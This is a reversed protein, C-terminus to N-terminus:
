MVEACGSALARYTMSKVRFGSFLSLCQCTPIYQICACFPVQSARLVCKLAHLIEFNEPAHGWLGRVCYPGWKKYKGQDGVIRETARPSFICLDTNLFKSILYYNNIAINSRTRLVDLHQTTRRTFNQQMM